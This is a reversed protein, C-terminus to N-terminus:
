RSQGRRAKNPLEPDAILARAMGILDAHGEAVIREALSPGFIRGGVLVPIDCVRKVAAAHSVAVGYPFTNDKVYSFRVGVTLSIYDILGSAQLKEVFRLTDALQIGDPTAEDASLRVGLAAQWGCRERVGRLIDFLFRMRNNLPQAM